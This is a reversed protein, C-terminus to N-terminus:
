LFLRAITSQISYNESDYAISKILTDNDFLYIKNQQYINCKEVKILDIKKDKQKLFLEYFFYKLNVKDKEEIVFQNARKAISNIYNQIFEKKNAEKGMLGSLVNPFEDIPKVGYFAVESNIDQFYPLRLPNLESETESWFYFNVTKGFVRFAFCFKNVIEEGNLVRPIISTSMGADIAKELNSISIKVPISIISLFNNTKEFYKEEYEFNLLYLNDPLKTLLEQRLQYYKEM